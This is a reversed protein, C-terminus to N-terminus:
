FKRAIEGYDISVISSALRSVDTDELTCAMSAPLLSDQAVNGGACRREGGDNGDLISDSTLGLGPFPTATALILENRTHANEICLASGDVEGLFSIDREPGKTQVQKILEHLCALSNACLKFALLASQGRISKRGHLCLGWLPGGNRFEERIDTRKRLRFGNLRESAKRRLLFGLEGEKLFRQEVQLRVIRLFQDALEGKAGTTHLRQSSMELFYLGCKRRLSNFGNEVRASFATALALLSPPQPVGCERGAQQSSSARLLPCCKPFHSALKRLILGVGVLYKWDYLIACLAYQTLLVEIMRSAMPELLKLREHSRRRLSFKPLNPFGEYPETLGKTIKLWHVVGNILRNLLNADLMLRHRVGYRRREGCIFCAALSNKRSQAFVLAKHGITRGGDRNGVFSVGKDLLDFGSDLSQAGTRSVLCALTHRGFSM